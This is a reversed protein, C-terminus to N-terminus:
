ESEASEAQSEASNGGHEIGWATVVIRLTDYSVSEELHEFLPKLRQAGHIRMAEQVRQQTEPAVWPDIDTVRHLQLWAVLYKVVTSEARDLQLCVDTVSVRQEFLDFYQ